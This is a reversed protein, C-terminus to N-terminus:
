SYPGFASAIHPLRASLEPISGRLYDLLARNHDFYHAVLEELINEVAAAPAHGSTKQFLHHLSLSDEHTFCPNSFPKHLMMHAILNLLVISCYNETLIGYDESYLRLTEAVYAYDFRTLFQQELRICKLYELVADIGTFADMNKLVPYYTVECLPPTEHPAYVADYHSM